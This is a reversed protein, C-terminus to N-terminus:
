IVEHHQSNLRPCLCASGLLKLGVQVVYHNRPQSPNGQSVGMELYCVFLFCVLFHYLSIFGLLTELYSALICLFHIIQQCPIIILHKMHIGKSGQVPICTQSRPMNYPFHPRSLKGPFSRFLIIIEWRKSVGVIIIFHFFLIIKM